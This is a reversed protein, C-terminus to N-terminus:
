SAKATSADGRDGPQVGGGPQDETVGVLGLVGDLLARGPRAHGAWTASRRIAEVGPEVPQEDAGADILRPSGPAMADVDLEVVISEGAGDLSRRRRDDVAVLELAAEAAELRLLPGDDDEM